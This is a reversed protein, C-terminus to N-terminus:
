TENSAGLDKGTLIDAARASDLGVDPLFLQLERPENKWNIVVPFVNLILKM